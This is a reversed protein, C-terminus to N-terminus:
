RTRKFGKGKKAAKKTARTPAPDSKGVLARRANRSDVSRDVGAGRRGAQANPTNEISESVETMGYSRDNVEEEKKLLNVNGNESKNINKIQEVEIKDNSTAVTRIAKEADAESPWNQTSQEVIDGNQDYKNWGYLSGDGVRTTKFTYTSTEM